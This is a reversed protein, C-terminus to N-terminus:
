RDALRAPLQSEANAPGISVVTLRHTAHFLLAACSCLKRSVLELGMVEAHEVVAIVVLTSILSTRSKPYEHYATLRKLFGMLSQTGFSLM